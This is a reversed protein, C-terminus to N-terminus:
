GEGDFGDSFSWGIGCANGRGYGYHGDNLKEDICERDCYGRGSGTHEWGDAEGKSWGEGIRCGAEDDIIGDGWGDGNRQSGRGEGLGSGNGFNKWFNRRFEKQQDQFNRWAIHMPYRMM